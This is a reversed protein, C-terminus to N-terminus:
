AGEESALPTSYKKGGVTVAAPLSNQVLSNFPDSSGHKHVCNRTPIGLGCDNLTGPGLKISPECGQEAIISAQGVHKKGRNILPLKRQERIWGDQICFESIGQHRAPHHPFTM